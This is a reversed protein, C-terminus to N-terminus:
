YDHFSWPLQEVEAGTLRRDVASARVTRLTGGQEMWGLHRYAGAVDALTNYTGVIEGQNDLVVIGKDSFWGCVNHGEATDVGLGIMYADMGNQELIYCQLIAHGDCDDSGREYIVWAPVYENGGAAKDWKADYTTNNEMFLSVLKLSSLM